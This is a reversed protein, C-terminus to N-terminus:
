DFLKIFYCYVTMVINVPLKPRSRSFVPFLLAREKTVSSSLTSRSSNFSRTCVNSYSMSSSAAILDLMGYNLSTLVKLICVDKLGRM